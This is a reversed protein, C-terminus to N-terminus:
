GTGGDRPPIRADSKRHDVLRDALDDYLVWGTGNEFEAIWTGTPTTVNAFALVPGLTFTVPYSEAPDALHGQLQRVRPSPSRVRQVVVDLAGVDPLSLTIRDGVEVEELTTPDLRAPTARAVYSGVRIEVAPGPELWWPSRGTAVGSGAARPAGEGERRAGPAGPDAFGPVDHGAHRVRAAVSAGAEPQRNTGEVGAPGLGGAAWLLASAGAGALVAARRRNWRM